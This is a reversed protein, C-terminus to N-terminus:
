LCSGSCGVQTKCKESLVNQIKQTSALSPLLYYLFLLLFSGCLCSIINTHVPSSVTSYLATSNKLIVPGLSQKSTHTPSLHTGHISIFPGPHIGLAITVANHQSPPSLRRPPHVVILEMVSMMNSPRSPIASCNDLACSPM